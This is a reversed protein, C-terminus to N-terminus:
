LLRPPRLTIREGAKALGRAADKGLRTSPAFVSQVPDDPRELCGSDGTFATLQESSAPEGAVNLGRTEFQELRERLLYQWLM